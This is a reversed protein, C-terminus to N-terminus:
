ELQKYYSWNEKLGMSLFLVYLGEDIATILPPSCSACTLNASNIVLSNVSRDVKRTIVWFSISFPNGSIRGGNCVSGIYFFIIFFWVPQCRRFLCVLHWEPWASPPNYKQQISDNQSAPLRSSNYCHFLWQNHKDQLFNSQTGPAFTTAEVM